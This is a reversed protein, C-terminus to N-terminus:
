EKRMVYKRKSIEMWEDKQIWEKVIGLRVKRAVGGIKYEKIAGRIEERQKM